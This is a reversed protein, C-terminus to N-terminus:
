GGLIEPSVLRAALRVLADRGRSPIALSLGAASWLPPRPIAIVLITILSVITPSCM